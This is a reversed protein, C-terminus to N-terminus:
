GHEAGLWRVVLVLADDDGDAYRALLSEALRQPAEGGRIDGVFEGRLGDTAMVLTDGPLVPLRSARLVPLRHGVVGSRHVVFHRAPAAHGPWHRILVGEVNGVGIWSLTGSVRDVFAVTM